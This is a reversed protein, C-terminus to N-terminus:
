NSGRWKSIEIICRPANKEYENQVEFKRVIAWNDDKLIGCDTLLDFISSTGNDSDRRRKDGHIFTLKIEVEEEIPLTFESDKAQYLAQTQVANKAERHWKQHRASPINKGNPLVIRSNKKSPTESNVIFRIM